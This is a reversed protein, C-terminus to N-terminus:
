AYHHVGKNGANPLVLVGYLKWPRGRSGWRVKLVVRAFTIEPLM